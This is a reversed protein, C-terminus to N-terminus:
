RVLSFRSLLFYSGVVAQSLIHVLYTQWSLLFTWPASPISTAKSGFLIPEYRPEVKHLWKVERLSPTRVMRLIFNIGVVCLMIKYCIHVTGSQSYAIFILFNIFPFAHYGTLVSKLNNGLTVLAWLFSHFLSSRLTQSSGSGNNFLKFYLWKLSIAKFIHYLREGQWHKTISDPITFCVNWYTPYYM